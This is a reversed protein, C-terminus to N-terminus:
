TGQLDIHRQVADGLSNMAKQAAEHRRQADIMLVMEQIPSVNSRERMGQVVLSDSPQPIVGAPASFLTIGAQQLRFPEAFSVLDIKGLSNGENSISGDRAIQITAASVNDPITIERGGGLVPLGDATSLRGEDDVRFNGNRTYLSQGNEGRVVFFGDGQIALDLPHDTPDHPGPSFDYAVEATQTGMAQRSVADRMAEEFGSEFSSQLLVMRRYGPMQAHALNQAVVEHQRTAADMATAASYLGTLM